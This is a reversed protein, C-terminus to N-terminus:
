LRDLFEGTRETVQRLVEISAIPDGPVELFHNLGQLELVEIAENDPIRSGDWTEDDPSGVLLTPASARSLQEVVRDDNLLPTQWVAPLARDAVLGAAASGLSKGIVVVKEAGSAEELAREAKDIAWAFPDGGHGGLLERQEVVDWGRARAAAGAYHLLPASTPYWAGPLLVACGSM